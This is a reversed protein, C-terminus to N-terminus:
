GPSIPRVAYRLDRYFVRYEHYALLDTGDIVISGSDIEELGNLCRLLTSKGAGSPGIIVVVEQRRIDTSFERLVAVGNPYTKSIKQIRILGDETM